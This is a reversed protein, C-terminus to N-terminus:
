PSWAVAGDVSACGPLSCLSAFCHFANAEWNVCSCRNPMRPRPRAETTRGPAPSVTCGRPCQTSFRFTLAEDEPRGPTRIWSVAGPFNGTSERARRLSSPCPSIALPHVAGRGQGVRRSVECRPGHIRESIGTDRLRERGSSLHACPESPEGKM